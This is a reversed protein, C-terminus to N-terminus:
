RFFGTLSNYVNTLTSAASEPIESTTEIKHSVPQPPELAIIHDKDNQDIRTDIDYEVIRGLLALQAELRIVKTEL